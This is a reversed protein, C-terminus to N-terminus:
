PFDNYCCRGIMRGTAREEVAWRGFGRLAWHGMAAAINDFAERLSTQPVGGPMVFRAVEPRGHIATLAACDDQRFPRLTLRPTDLSPIQVM